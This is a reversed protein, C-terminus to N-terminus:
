QPDAGGTGISGAGAAGDPDRDEVAAGEEGGVRAAAQGQAGESAAAGTSGSEAPMLLWHEQWGALIEDLVRFCQTQISADVAGGPTRLVAGGRGVTEDGMFTVAEYDGAPLLDRAFQRAHELDQPHLHIELRNRGGVLQLAERLNGAM